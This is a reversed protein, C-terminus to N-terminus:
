CASAEGDGRQSSKSSQSGGSLADLREKIMALVEPSPPLVMRMTRGAGESWEFVIQEKKEGAVEPTEEDFLEGMTVCLAKTLRKLDSVRPERDGAEWRRITDVSVDVKAALEDQRLLCKKRLTRLKSPFGASEM